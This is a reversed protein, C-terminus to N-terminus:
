NVNLMFLKLLIVLPLIELTCLYMFLYIKSIGSSNFGLILGRIMRIIFFTIIMVIGTYIFIGPSVQKVFTLCIVIPLMFLGLTNCFLFITMMYDKAEKEVNLVYGLLKITAFKVAYTTILAFVIIIILFFDSEFLQFGFYSLVRNIFLSLTTIFFVSLFISVRNGIAFDERSLQNSFRNIYFGKIIQSLKKYNSVYMWVFLIYLFLLIGSILFDYKTFHIEPKSNKVSLLHNKFLSPATVTDRVVTIVPKEAVKAVGATSIHKNTKQPM